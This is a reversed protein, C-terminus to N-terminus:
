LSFGIVKVVNVYNINEIRSKLREVDSFELNMNLSCIITARGNIPVTQHITIVSCKEENIIALIQGLIGVVDEVNISISLISEKKFDKIPFITDRYKYFASRSLGHEKVTEQISLAPNDELAKKVKITKQVAEPLVDERIVYYNKNQM